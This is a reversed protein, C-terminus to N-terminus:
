MKVIILPDKFLILRNLIALITKFCVTLIIYFRRFISDVLWAQLFVCDDVFSLSNYPNGDLDTVYFKGLIWFFSFYIPM